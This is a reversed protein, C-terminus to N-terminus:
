QKRLNPHIMIRRSKGGLVNAQVVRLWNREELSELAHEVLNPTKLHTWQNRYISRVTSEHPVLGSIDLGPLINARNGIKVDAEKFFLHYGGGGTSSALTKPLAGSKKVLKQFSEKGGHRPDIDLVFFGSASGTALGINADAM